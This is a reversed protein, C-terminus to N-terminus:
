DPSGFCVLISRARRKVYLGAEGMTRTEIGTDDDMLVSWGFGPIGIRIVGRFVVSGDFEVLDISNKRVSSRPPREQVGPALRPPSAVSAKNKLM